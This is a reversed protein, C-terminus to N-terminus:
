KSKNAPVLRIGSRQWLLDLDGVNWQERGVSPDGIDVRDDDAFGYFLVSHSLGLVWGWQEHYRPDVAAVEPTLRVTLIIPLDQCDMVALDSLEGVFTEPRFDTGQTKLSLGRYLGTWNTGKQSFCLGAMEQETTPVDIARLVSAACAASCTYRTTQMCVDGSWLNDCDPVTGLLPKVTAYSSISALAITAVVRRAITLRRETGILGVLIAAFYPVVNGVVVLNSVPFYNALRVDDQVHAIYAVGVVLASAGILGRTAKSASRSVFQTLLMIAIFVAAVFILGAWIDSM